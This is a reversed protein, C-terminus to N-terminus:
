GRARLRIPFLFCGHRLPASYGDGQRDMSDITLNYVKNKVPRSQEM